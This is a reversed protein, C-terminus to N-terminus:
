AGGQNMQGHPPDPYRYPVAPPFVGQMPFILASHCTLTDAKTSENLLSQPVLPEVETTQSYAFGPVPTFLAFAILVTVNPTQLRKM